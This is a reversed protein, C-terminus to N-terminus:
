SAHREVWAKIRHLGERLSREDAAFSFRVYDGRGFGEGPVVAVHAEDLWRMALESSPLGLASIKCFIYFAGEPFIPDLGPIEKLGRYLIDRRRKFHEVMKDVESQDGKLAETAAKQSLSTPNSTSHSQLNGVAKVISLPGALYGIRFGTMAYTKSVGSVTMTRDYIERGLSAPSVHRKGFTIKEYIEDSILFLDHTVVLDAIAKLEEFSYLSGVPNSPSNLLIVKTGATLVKSLDEAMPLFRNEERTSVQRPTAGALRVMEPYSVWYPNGFIVEDGDGCLVQLLNYLAHKAGCSVCVQSPEYSLANDEKFKQCIAEKLEQIGTAPTYRTFNEELARVAAQKIHRPTEFDPEGAGFNVVDVGKQKLCTARSVVDLTASATLGEVRPSLRKM